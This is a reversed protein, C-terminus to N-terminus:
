RAGVQVLYLKLSLMVPAKVFKRFVDSNSAHATWSKILTPFLELLMHFTTNPIQVVMEM